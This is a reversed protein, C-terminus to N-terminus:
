IWFHVLQDKEVDITYIDSKYMRGFLTDETFQVKIDNMLNTTTGYRTTASFTTPLDNRKEYEGDKILKYCDEIIGEIVAEEDLGWYNLYNKLKMTYNWDFLLRFGEEKYEITSYQKFGILINKVKNKM